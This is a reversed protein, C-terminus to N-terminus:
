SLGKMRDELEEAGDILNNSFYEAYSHLRELDNFIYNDLAQQQQRTMEMVHEFEDDELKAQMRILYRDGIFMIIIMFIVIFGLLM